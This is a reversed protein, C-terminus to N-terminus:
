IYDLVSFSGIKEQEEHQLEMFHQLSKYYKLKELVGMERPAHSFSTKETKM